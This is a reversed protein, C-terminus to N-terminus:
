PLFPLLLRWFPPFSLSFWTFVVFTPSFVLLFTFSCFFSFFDAFLFFLFSFSFSLVNFFFCFKFFFLAFPSSFFGFSIRFVVLLISTLWFSFCFLVHLLFYYFVVLVGSGSSFRRFLLACKIDYHWVVVFFFDFIIWHQITIWFIIAWKWRFHVFAVAIFLSASLHTM